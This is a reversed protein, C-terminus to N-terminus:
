ELIVREEGVHLLNHLEAEDEPEFDIRWTLTETRFALPKLVILSKDMPVKATQLGAYQVPKWGKPLKLFLNGTEEKPRICVGSLYRKNPNWELQEIEVGGQTVHMDTGILWPHPRSRAIRFVRIHHPPVEVELRDKIEGLYMENWFDFVTYTPGHELELKDLSLEMKVTAPETNLVGIVNWEDWDKEVKLNFIKPWDPYVADFLDAPKAMKNYPPLSKKILALREEGITSIDDGLMVPGGSLAFMSVTIIAENLPVPKDITMVNFADNYYLKRDTFYTNAMTTSVTRILNWTNITYMAPYENMGKILPRGEGCDPAVRVADVCGINQFTTGTSSLIYADEGAAERITKLAERYVEPGKVKSRDFYEDYLFHGPTSGSGTYLFDIMYYRIGLKQYFEFTRKLFDVTDPHSGDLCYFGVREDPPLDGSKGFRWRSNSKVFEGQRKLLHHKHEEFLPSLKDPIWFPAVWFGLRQGNIALKSVLWEIDHPFSTKNFATWNGPLMHKLNGISVWFNTVDFGELRTQIAASNELVLEEYTQQTFGDRWTWGGLWGVSPKLAIRPKYYHSVKAAWNELSAYPDYSWDCGITESEIEQDPQLEYDDFDCYGDVHIKNHSTSYAIETNIRDFTMFSCNFALKHSRNYLLGVTKSRHCNNESYLKKVYNDTVWATQCLAVTEEAGEGLDINGSEHLLHCKGLKIATKGVNKVRAQITLFCEEEYLRFSIAFKKGTGSAGCDAVLESYRGHLDKGQNMEVSNTKELCRIQSGDVEWVLSFSEMVLRQDATMSWTGAVSDFSIAGFKNSLPYLM